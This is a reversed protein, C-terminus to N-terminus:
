SSNGESGRVQAALSKIYLFLAQLRAGCPADALHQETRGKAPTSPAAKTRREQEKQLESIRTTTLHRERATSFHAFAITTKAM